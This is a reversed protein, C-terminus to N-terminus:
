KSPAFQRIDHHFVLQYTNDQLPYGAKFADKTETSVLVFAKYPDGLRVNASPSQNATIFQSAKPYFSRSLLRSAEWATTVICQMAPPILM